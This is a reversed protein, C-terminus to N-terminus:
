WQKEMLEVVKEAARSAALKASYEFDQGMKPSYSASASVSQNEILLEGSRLDKWSTSVTIITENELPDGTYREGALVSSGISTIQGSLVTDAADRDSVIKYPTQAEIRKCIADTLVYEHGRRFSKSDFMEVYVSTVNEPYFWENSYGGCGAIGLCICVLLGIVAAPVIKFECLSEKM